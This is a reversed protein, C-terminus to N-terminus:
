LSGSIFVRELKMDVPGVKIDAASATGTAKDLTLTATINGIEGRATFREGKKALVRTKAATLKDPNESIWIDMSHERGVAKPEALLARLQKSQALWNGPKAGKPLNAKVAKGQVEGEVVWTGDEGEKLSLSNSVEGNSVETSVANILSDDARIWNVQTSDQSQVNGDNTAILLATSQRAKIDGEADRELTSITVGLETGSMSATSIEVFHLAAAPAQTELTEAFAQTIGTFTNVYGLDNHVCYVGTTGKEMIFQKLNGLLGAGQPGPVRYLWSLKIYPVPGYSGADSSELGRAEIKGHNAEISKVANEFTVRLGNALDVGDPFVECQVPSEGGIDFEVSYSGDVKEIDASVKGPARVKFWGDKSKVEAATPFKGERARADKLWQPEDAGFACTCLLFSFAFAARSM